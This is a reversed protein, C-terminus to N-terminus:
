VTYGEWTFRGTFVVSKRSLHYIRKHSITETVDRYLDPDFDNLHGGANATVGDFAGSVPRFFICYDSTIQVDSM